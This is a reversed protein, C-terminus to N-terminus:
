YEKLWEYGLLGPKVYIKIVDVGPEINTYDKFSIPIKEIKKDERWSNIIAFNGDYYSLPQNKQRKTEKDIIIKSYEKKKGFDFLGNAIYLSAFSSLLYVALCIEIPKYKEQQTYESFLKKLFPLSILILVLLAILSHFSIPNINKFTRFEELSYTFLFMIIVGFCGFFWLYKGEGFNTKYFKLLLIVFSSALILYVTIM